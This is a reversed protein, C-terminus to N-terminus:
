AARRATVRIAEHAVEYGYGRRALYALARARDTEEALPQNRRMLLECAREVEAEESDDELVLEVLSDAIGRSALAARIRESGWGRLARKDEAYRQAFRRDDLEGAETLSRIAQEGDDAGFGRRALLAAVEASTLEKRRLEALAAEFAGPWREHVRGSAL